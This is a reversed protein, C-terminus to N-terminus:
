KLSFVKEFMPAVVDLMIDSLLCNFHSVYSERHNTDNQESGKHQTINIFHRLKYEHDSDNHQADKAGLIIM